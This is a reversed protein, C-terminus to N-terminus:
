HEDPHAEAALERGPVTQAAQQNHQALEHQLSQRECIFLVSIKEVQNSWVM